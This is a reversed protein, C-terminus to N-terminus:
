APATHATKRATIRSPLDFSYVLFLEVFAEMDEAEEKTVLDADHAADRGILRVEHAWKKMTPTVGVEDPLNEIRDYLSGKGEQHLTKLSVEVIRRLVPGAADYHRQRLCAVAQKYLSAINPPVGNPAEIAKTAPWIEAPKVTAPLVELQGQAWGEATVGNYAAIVAESCVNCRMFCRISGTQLKYYHVVSFGAADASCHPCPLRTSAM